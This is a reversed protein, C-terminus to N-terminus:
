DQAPGNEGRKPGKKVPRGSPKGGGEPNDEGPEAPPNTNKDMQSPTIKPRRTEGKLKLIEQELEDIRQAQWAIVERLAEVLASRESEPIEPLEPKLSSM